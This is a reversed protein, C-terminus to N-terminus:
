AGIYSILQTEAVATSCTVTSAQAREVGGAFVMSVALGLGFIAASTTRGPVKLINFM